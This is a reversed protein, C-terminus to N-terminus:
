KGFQHVLPKSDATNSASRNSGGLFAQGNPLVAISTIVSLRNQVKSDYFSWVNGNWHLLYPTTYYSNYKYYGAVWVDNDSSGSVATLRMDAPVQPLQVQEWTNNKYNLIIPKWTGSEL